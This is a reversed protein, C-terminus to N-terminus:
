NSEREITIITGDLMEIKEHSVLGDEDKTYQYCPTKIADNLRNAIHGDLGKPQQESTLLHAKLTKNEEMLAKAKEEIARLENEINM